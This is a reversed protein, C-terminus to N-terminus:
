QVRLRSGRLFGTVGILIVVTSVAEGFHFWSGGNSSAAMAFLVAFGVLILLAKPNFHM